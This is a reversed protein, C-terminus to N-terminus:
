GLLDMIDSSASTTSTNSFQAPFGNTPKSEVPANTTPGTQNNLFAFPDSQPNSPAAPTPAKRPAAVPKTVTWGFEDQPAAAPLTTTFPNPAPTAAVPRPPVIPQQYPNQQQMGGFSQTNAFPNGQQQQFPSTTGNMPQQQPFYGFQPQPPQQQNQKHMENINKKLEAFPDNILLPADDETKNPRQVVSYLQDTQQTPPQEVPRAPVSPAAFFDLDKQASNQKPDVANFPSSDDFPNQDTTTSNNTFNDGGFPDNTTTSSYGNTDAFMDFGDSPQDNQMVQIQENLQNWDGFADKPNDYTPDENVDFFNGENNTSPQENVVPTEVVAPQEKTETAEEVQEEQKKAQFREFVEQFLSKLTSTIQEAEKMSKIAFLKYGEKTGVIYAFTRKDDNDHSIFSIRHIPHAHDIRETTEDLIRIGKLTINVTIKQKHEKKEKNKQVAIMKLKTMASQCIDDGRAAPVDTCGILKCKFDVGFGEFKSVGDQAKKSKGM